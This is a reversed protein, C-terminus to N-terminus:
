KPRAKVNVTLVPSVTPNKSKKRRRHFYIENDPREISAILNNIAAVTQPKM